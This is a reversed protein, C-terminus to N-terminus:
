RREPNTNYLMNWGLQRRIEELTPPATRQEQRDRMWARVQEKSPQTVQTSAMSREQHFQMILHPPRHQNGAQKSVM